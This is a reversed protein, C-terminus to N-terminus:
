DNGQTSDTEVFNKRKKGEFDKSFMLGIGANNIDGDFLDYISLNYAKVKYTGSEDINYYLKYDTNYNSTSQSQNSSGDLNIRSELEFSVRDDFLKKSIQVDLDTTTEGGKRAYDEYTNLGLNMNFFSINESTLKNMQQSLISNLSNRATASAIESTSSGSSANTNEAIFGGTVLLAFVQKNREQEMEQSSLKNLKAAIMPSSQKYEDPLDLAFSVNPSLLLGDAIFYLEYPLRQNYLSKEKESNGISESSMLALSNTRVIHKAKLNLTSNNLPGSFSIFSQPEITFEKKIMEYFSMQYLGDVVRINGNLETPKNQVSKYVLTGNLGFRAYDGAQQNTIITYRAKPNFSISINFNTASLISVISDSVGKISNAIYLSDSVSENNNSFRVVGDSSNQFPDKDPLIITVDTSEHIKLSAQIDPHNITGKLDLNTSLVLRGYFGNKDNATINFAQFYKSNINLGLGINKYDSTIIDGNVALQNGAMDEVTVNDFHIGKESLTIKENKLHFSSGTQPLIVLANNLEIFGNILPGDELLVVNVNGKLRGEVLKIINTDILSSYQNIDNILLSAAHKKNSSKGFQGSYHLYDANNLIDVNAKFSNDSLQTFALDFNGYPHKLLELDKISFKSNLYWFNEKTNHLWFKGSLLGQTIFNTDSVSIFHSTNALNLNEVNVVVEDPTEFFEILQDQYSLMVGETSWVNNKYDYQLAVKDSATWNKYSIIVGTPSLYFKIVSDTQSMIIPINAVLKGETDFIKFKSYINNSKSNSSFEFTNAKINNIAIQNFTINAFFSDNTFSVNSILDQLALDSYAFHPINAKVQLVNNQLSYDFNLSEVILTDLFISGLLSQLADPSNVRCHLDYEKGVPPSYFAEPNLNKNLFAKIEDQVESVSINGNSWLDFGQTQIHSYESDDRKQFLVQTENLSYDEGSYHVRIKDVKSTLIFKEPNTYDFKGTCWASISIDDKTLKFSGTNFENLQINYVLNTSDPLITGSVEANFDLDSSAHDLKVELYNNTFSGDLQLDHIKKAALDFSDIKGIASVSLLNDKFKSSTHVNIKGSTRGVITDNIYKSLDFNRLELFSKTSIQISDRLATIKGNILGSNDHIEFNSSLNDLTGYINFNCKLVPPDNRLNDTQSALLTIISEFIITDAVFSYNLKDPKSYNNISGHVKALFVKDTSLNLKKILIEDQNGSIDIAFDINKGSGLIDMKQFEPIFYSLEAPSFSGSLNLKHVTLDKLNPDFLPLNIDINASFESNQTKIKRFNLRGLNENLIFDVSVDKLNFGNADICTVHEINAKISDKTVFTSRISFDINTFGFNSPNFSSLSDDHAALQLLVSNNKGKVEGASITWGGSFNIKEPSIELPEAIKNSNASDARYDMAYSSNKIELFKIEVLEKAIDVLITQSNLKEIGAELFSKKSLDNLVFSVQDLKLSRVRFIPAIQPQNDITVTSLALSEDVRLEVQTNKLQVKDLTFDLEALKSGALNTRFYDLTVDLFVQTLSDHYRFQVDELEIKRAEFRFQDGSQKKRTSDVGNAIFSSFNFSDDHYRYIQGKVGKIFLSKLYIDKSLLAKLSIRAKFQDISILQGNDDGPVQLNYVSVKGNIGIKIREFQIDPMGNKVLIKEKVINAVIRQTGAFQIIIFLLLFLAILSLFFYKAIKFFRAM